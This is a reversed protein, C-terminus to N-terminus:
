EIELRAEASGTPLKFPLLCERWRAALLLVLHRHNTKFGVDGILSMDSKHHVYWLLCVHWFSSSHCSAFISHLKWLIDERCCNHNVDFLGTIKTSINQDCGSTEHPVLNNWQMVYQSNWSRCINSTFSKGHVAYKIILQQFHFQSICICTILPRVRRCRWMERLKFVSQTIILLSNMNPTRGRLLTYFHPESLCSQLEILSCM